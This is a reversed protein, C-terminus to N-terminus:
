DILRFCMEMKLAQRGKIKLERLGRRLAQGGPVGNETSESTRGEKVLCNGGASIHTERVARRM